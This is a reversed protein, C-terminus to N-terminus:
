KIQKTVYGIGFSFEPKETQGSFWLRITNDDALVSPALVSNNKWDSNNITLINTELEEFHIGDSSKASSIAIQDFGDPNYVVDHYMYFIKDKVYIMPTSYGRYKTSDYSSTLTHVIKHDTFTSGDYSTALMIGFPTGSDPYNSKASAYYLFFQNNHFVIGPEATTYFGWKLPDDHPKIVPNNPDKEWNIGDYSTAHGISYIAKKFDDDYGTYYLHYLDGVKIVSPTEVSESDWQGETSVLIPKKNINWNIGDNSTAYYLKVVIKDAFPDGGSLWMKYINGEKIVSPDNWLMNSITDKYKIVPNNEYEIWGSANSDNQTVIPKNDNNQAFIIFSILISLGFFINKKKM